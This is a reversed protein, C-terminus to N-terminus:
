ISLLPSRRESGRKEEMILLILDSLWYIGEKIGEGTKASTKFVEIERNSNKSIGLINPLDREDIEDILDIKNAFIALPLNQLHSLSLVNTLSIRVDPYRKPNSVDVVFILGVSNETYPKWLARRFQMQGGLDWATFRVNGITLIESNMGITPTTKPIWRGTKIRQLMSTKGARDLGLVSIKGGKIIQQTLPLIENQYHKPISTAQIIEKLRQIMEILSQSLSNPKKLALKKLDRTTAAVGKWYNSSRTEELPPSNQHKEEKEYTISLLNARAEIQSLFTVLRDLQKKRELHSYLRQILKITDFTGKRFEM